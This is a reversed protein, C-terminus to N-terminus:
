FFFITRVSTWRGTRWLVMTTVQMHRTSENKEMTKKKLDDRLRGLEKELSLLRRKLNAINRQHQRNKKEITCQRKNFKRMTELCSKKIAELNAFVSVEGLSAEAITQTGCSEKEAKVPTGEGVAGSTSRQQNSYAIGSPGARNLMNRCDEEEPTSSSDIYIPGEQVENGHESAATPIATETNAGEFCRDEWRPRGAAEWLRMMASHRWVCGSARPIGQWAELSGLFDSKLKKFKTRCQEPSRPFGHRHLVTSLRRYITRNKFHTSSM